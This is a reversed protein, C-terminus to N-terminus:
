EKSLGIQQKASDLDKIDVEVIKDECSIMLQSERVEILNGRIIRGDKIKVVLDRGLVCKFEQENKLLRDIGPSFVELVYSQDIFDAEDLMNALKRNVGVCEDMAIGGSKNVIFRLLLKSGLSILSLEIIECGENKVVPMAFQMTKEKLEDLYSM